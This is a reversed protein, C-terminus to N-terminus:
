GPLTWGTVNVTLTSDTGVETIVMLAILQHGTNGDATVGNTVACLALDKEPTVETSIPATRIADLCQQPTATIGPAEAVENGTFTLTGPVGRTCSWRYNLDIAKEPAGVAPEDLDVARSGSCGTGPSLTLTQTRYAPSMAPAATTTGPGPDTASTSDTVSPDTTGPLLTVVPGSETPTSADTSISGTVLAITALILSVLSVVLAAVSIQTARMRHADPVPTSPTTGHARPPPQESKEPDSM